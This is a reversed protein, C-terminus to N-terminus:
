WCQNATQALNAWAVKQLVAAAVQDDLSESLMRLIRSHDESTLKGKEGRGSQVRASCRSTDVQSLEVDFAFIATVQLQVVVELGVSTSSLEVQLSVM